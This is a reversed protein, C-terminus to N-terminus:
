IQEILFIFTLFCLNTFPYEFSVGSAKACVLHTCTSDFSPKLKGGHIELLAWLKKVDKASVQSVSAIV